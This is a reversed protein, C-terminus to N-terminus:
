GDISVKFLFLDTNKMQIYYGNSKGSSYNFGINFVLQELFGIKIEVLKEHLFKLEENTEIIL